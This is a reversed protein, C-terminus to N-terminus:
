KNVFILYLSIEADCENRNDKEIERMDVDLAKNSDCHHVIVQLENLYNSPFNM